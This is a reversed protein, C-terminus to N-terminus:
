TARTVLEGLLGHWAAQECRPDFLPALERCHSRLKALFVPNTECLGLLTALQATDGVTFYGAYNQGLLGVSAPIRSVLLPVGAVVAESVVNAGGELRSSLVCLASRGLIQAVRWRPQEGMWRYRPNVAMEAQARAAMEENMAAGVHLIRLRSSSPLRRAALATRFPDKVPRLHGIVSVIFKSHVGAAHGRARKWLNAPASQYVIRLKSRLGPRLEDRAKPQLAVLRTALELSKQAKRSRALDRYLDTGTLAVILPRDPHEDHFRHIAPYSRKAHLAVLLDYPEGAYTLAISVRHGLDQLIRAWRLATIRNGYKSRPPAPTIIGIRMQFDAV